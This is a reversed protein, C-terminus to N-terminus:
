DFSVIARRDKLTEIWGNLHCEMLENVWGGKWGDMREWTITKVRDV